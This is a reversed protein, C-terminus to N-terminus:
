QKFAIMPIQISVFQLKNCIKHLDLWKKFLMKMSILFYPKNHVATAVKVYPIIIVPPNADKNFFTIQDNKRSSNIMTESQIVLYTWSRTQTYVTYLLVHMHSFFYAPPLFRGATLGNQVLYKTFKSTLYFTLLLFLLSPLNQAQYLFLSLHKKMKEWTHSLSFFESDRHPISGRVKPAHFRFTQPAIGRSSELKKRQEVSTVLHFFM